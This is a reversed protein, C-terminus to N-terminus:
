QRAENVTEHQAEKERRVETIFNVLREGTSEYSHLRVVWDRLRNRVVSRDRRDMTIAHTLVDRLQVANNAAFVPSSEGYADAYLTPNCHNSVVLCGLAAAERAAIGYEGYPKGWLFPMMVDVYIDAWRMRDIHAAHTTREREIRYEFMGPFNKSLEWLVHSIVDTGKKTHDSPFHAIHLPSDMGIRLPVLADVDVPTQILVENKAGYNLLDPTEIITADAIENWFANARTPDQRYASGGHHVLVLKGTLEVGEPSTPMTHIFLLVDAANWEDRVVSENWPEMPHSYKFIHGNHAFGRAVVGSQTNLSKVLEAGTNGWDDVALALVRM